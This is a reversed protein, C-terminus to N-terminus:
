IPNTTTITRSSPPPSSTCNRIRGQLISTSVVVSLFLAFSFARERRQHPLLLAGGVLEALPFRLMKSVEVREGRAEAAEALANFRRCPAAIPPFVPYYIPSLLQM